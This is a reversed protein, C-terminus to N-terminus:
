VNLYSINTAVKQLVLVKISHACLMGVHEFWGCDCSISQGGLEFKVAHESFDYTSLELGPTIRVRFEMDPLSSSVMYSGAKFLEESFRDYM